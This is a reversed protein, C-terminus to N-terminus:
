KRDGPTHVWAATGLRELATILRGAADSAQNAAEVLAPCDRALEARVADPSELLPRTFQDVTETAGRLVEALQQTRRTIDQIPRNM